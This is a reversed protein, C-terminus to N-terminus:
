NNLKNIEKKIEQNYKIFFVFILIYLIIPLFVIVWSIGIYGSKCIYNLLWTWVLAIVITGITGTITIMNSMTQSILGVIVLVIYVIAPACLNKFPTIFNM